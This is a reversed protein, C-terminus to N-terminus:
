TIITAKGKLKIVVQYIIYFSINELNGTKNSNKGISLAGAGLGL